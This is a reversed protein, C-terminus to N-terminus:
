AVLVLRAPVSQTSDNLSRILWRLTQMQKNDLNVFRLGFGLRTVHHAVEGTLDFWEGNPLQVKFHLQEGIYAESISDIYCGGESIDTVRANNRTGEWIADLCVEYRYESRRDSMTAINMMKLNRGTPCFHFGLLLASTLHRVLPPLSGKHPLQSCVLARTM